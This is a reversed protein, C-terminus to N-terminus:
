YICCFGEINDDVDDMDQELNLIREDQIVAQVALIDVDGKLEALDVGLDSIDEEIELVESELISVREEM